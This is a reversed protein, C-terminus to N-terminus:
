RSEALGPTNHPLTSGRDQHPDSLVRRPPLLVGPVLLYLGCVPESFTEPIRDFIAGPYLLGPNRWPLHLTPRPPFLIASAGKLVGAM